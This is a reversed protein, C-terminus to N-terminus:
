KYTSQVVAQVESQVVSEIADTVVTEALEDKIAKVELAEFVASQVVEQCERGVVEKLLGECLSLCVHDNVEKIFQQEERACEQVVQKVSTSVAESVVSEVVSM